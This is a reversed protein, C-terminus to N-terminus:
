ATGNKSKLPVSICNELVLAFSFSHSTEESTVFLKHFYKKREYTNPSRRGNKMKYKGYLRGEM